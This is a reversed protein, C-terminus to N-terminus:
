RSQLLVRFAHGLFGPHTLTQFQRVRAPSWDTLPTETAWIKEAISSLFQSQTLLGETHLGASEGAQQLQTFNVHATIDQEGPAALPDAALHHRSYSRLTGTSRSPQLVEEVTLGYDVTMLKGRKLVEAAKHWWTGTAPSFDIVFGDPLVELLENPLNFGNRRLEPLWNTANPLTSWVFRGDKMGVGLESWTHGARNWVLRHVPFADLLENSFIVGEFSARPFSDFSETWFVRDAFKELKTRQWQQRAPSPELLWYELNEFLAPRNQSLWILVDLALQGDHAGAELCLGRGPLSQLWEALQFGLLEGFLSGVSISTYYDGARGIHQRKQEYYGFQPCYLAVEMFRTFSIVGLKQIDEELIRSIETM